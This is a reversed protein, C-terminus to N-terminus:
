RAALRRPPQDALLASAVALFARGIASRIPGPAHRGARREAAAAARAARLEDAVQHLEALHHDLNPHQDTM